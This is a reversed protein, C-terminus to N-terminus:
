GALYFSCFISALSLFHVSPRFIKKITTSLHEFHPELQLKNTTGIKIPNYGRQLVGVRTM